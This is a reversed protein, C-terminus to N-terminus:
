STEGRIMRGGLRVRPQPPTQGRVLTMMLEVTREALEHPDYEVRSVPLHYALEIGRSAFTVIRLDRPLSLGLQLTGRLAGNCMADDQVFLGDPKQENAWLRVFCEYGLKESVPGEIREIWRRDVKLGLSEAVSIFLPVFGFGAPYSHCIAGVSKCGVDRLHTLAPRIMAEEQDFGVSYTGRPNGVFVVPVGARELQTGVENLPHFSFVGRLRPLVEPDLLDLTAPFSADTQSSGGVHMRVQWRTNQQQLLRIVTGSVNRFYPHSDSALLEPRVVVAFEGTQLRDAVYVGKGKRREILGRAELQDYARELTVQSVSLEKRLEPMTPLPMGAPLKRIQAELHTFALQVRSSQVDTPV